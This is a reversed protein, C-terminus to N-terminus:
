VPWTKDVWEKEKKDIFKYFAVDACVVIPLIFIKDLNGLVYGVVAMNLIIVDIVLWLGCLLALFGDLFDNNHANVKKYDQRNRMENNKM